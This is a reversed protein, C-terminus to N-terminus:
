KKFLTLREKATQAAASAPYQNILTELTKKANVRDKLDIYSSSINLLAEPAKPSDPYNKVVWQQQAIAERYERLAYSAAGAFYGASAAYGSQPYRQTFDAFSKQANKYDGAKFLNLAAEYATKETPEVSTERGDVTVKQPELRRLRSDLDVYFDKQRQQTNTIENALVEVQGRLKDIEMALQEQRSTLNLLSGKDAKNSVQNAMETQLSEVKFRLDVIARRAEDDDFLSAFAPLALLTAGSFIAILGAIRSFRSAM